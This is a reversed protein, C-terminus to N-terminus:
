HAPRARAKNGKRLALEECTKEQGEKRESDVNVESLKIKNEWERTNAM